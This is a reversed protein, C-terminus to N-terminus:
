KAPQVMNSAVDSPVISNFFRAAEDSDTMLEMWMIEYAPTESFAKSLEASKIFRRGDDSKEGYARLLLDKYAALIESADQRDIIKRMFAELGGVKSYNYEELEPKTMNFRFTEERENGDYDTYAITKVYM